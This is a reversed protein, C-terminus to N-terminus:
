VILETVFFDIFYFTMILCSHAIQNDGWYYDMHAGMKNRFQYIVNCGDLFYSWRDRDEKNMKQIFENNKIKNILSRTSTGKLNLSYQENIYQIMHEVCRGCSTIVSNYKKTMQYINYAETIEKILWYHEFFIEDKLNHLTYKANFEMVNNKRYLQYNEIAKLIDSYFNQIFGAGLIPNLRISDDKKEIEGKEILKDITRKVAKDVHKVNSFGENHELIIDRLDCYDMTGGNAILLSICYKERDNYVKM